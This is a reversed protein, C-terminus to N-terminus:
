LTTVPGQSNPAKNAVWVGSEAVYLWFTTRFVESGCHQARRVRCANQVLIPLRGTDPNALTLIISSFFLETTFCYFVGYQEWKEGACTV